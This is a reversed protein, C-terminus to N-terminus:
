HKSMNKKLGKLNFKWQVPGKDDSLAQKFIKRWQPCDIGQDIAKHAQSIDKFDSLKLSHAYDVYSELERYAEHYRHDIPGSDFNVVGTFRNMNFSATATAVKAGFGHGGITAM